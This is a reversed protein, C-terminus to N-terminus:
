GLELPTTNEEAAGFSELPLGMVRALATLVDGMRRQGMPVDRYRGGAVRGGLTGLTVVPILSAGDHHKGGGSNIWVILSHDAMTGGAEPVDRLRSWLYALEAAKFRVITTIAADHQARSWGLGAAHGINLHADGPVGLENWGVNHADFGLMSLHVVHTMGFALAHFALDTHARLLTRGLGATGALAADPTTPLPRTATQLARLKKSLQHQSARCSDFLQELKRGEAGGLRQKAREVDGCVTEILSLERTTGEIAGLGPVPAGFLAGWADIPSAFAPAIRGPGDAACTVSRSAPTAAPGLALSPFVDDAFGRAGILRDISIGGPRMPKLLPPVCTLTGWGNGHLNEGAGNKFRRLISLESQYPRLPELVSPLDWDTESRATTALVQSDRAMGQHGWGNGDVFFIIRRPAMPEGRAERVLGRLLPSLVTASAGVGLTRLLDRRALTM